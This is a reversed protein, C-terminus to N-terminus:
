KRCYVGQIFIIDTQPFISIGNDKLWLTKLQYFRSFDSGTVTPLKNHSLGLNTVSDPVDSPVSILGAYKCVYDSGKTGSIFSATVVLMCIGVRGMM